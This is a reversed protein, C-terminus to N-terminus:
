RVSYTAVELHTLANLFDEKEAKGGSAKFREWLTGVVFLKEDIEEKQKDSMVM